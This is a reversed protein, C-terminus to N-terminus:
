PARRTSETLGAAWRASSDPMSFAVQLGVRRAHGAFPQACGRGEARPESPPAVRRIRSRAGGAAVGRPLHARDRGEGSRRRATAARTRRTAQGRQEFKRGSRHNAYRRARTFGMQLFKRAMDMGVFDGRAGYAIFARTCRTRRRARSRRRAFRWLPLLESKYPEVILVGQEGRGVRYREPDRRFDVGRYTEAYSTRVADARAIRIPGCADVADVVEEGQTVVIEGRAALRAASRRVEDMRARWGTPDVARAVESPCISAGARRARLLRGITREIEKASM